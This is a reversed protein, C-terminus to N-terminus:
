EHGPLTRWSSFTMSRRTTVPRVFHDLDVIQGDLDARRGHVHAGRRSRRRVTASSRNLFSLASAFREPGRDIREVHVPLDRAAVHAFEHM